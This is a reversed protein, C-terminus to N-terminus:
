ADFCRECEPNKEYDWEGCRPGRIHATEATDRKHRWDIGCATRYGFGDFHWKKAFRVLRM